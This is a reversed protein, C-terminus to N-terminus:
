RVPQAGGHVLLGALAGVVLAAVDLCTVVEVPREFKAPLLVRVQDGVSFQREVRHEAPDRLATPSRVWPRAILDDPGAPRQRGGEVFPGPPPTEDVLHTHEPDGRLVDVHLREAVIDGPHLPGTRVAPFEDVFGALESDVVGGAV